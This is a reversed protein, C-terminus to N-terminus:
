DYVHGANRYTMFNMTTAAVGIHTDDLVIVPAHGGLAM